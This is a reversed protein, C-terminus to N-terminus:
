RSERLTDQWDKEEVKSLEFLRKIDASRTAFPKEEVQFIQKYGTWDEPVIKWDQAPVFRTQPQVKTILRNSTESALKDMSTIAANLDTGFNEVKVAGAEASFMGRGWTVVKSIGYINGTEHDHRLEFEIRSDGGKTQPTYRLLNSYARPGDPDSFNNARDLNPDEVTVEDYSLQDRTKFGLDGWNKRLNERLREVSKKMPASKQARRKPVTTTFTKYLLNKDSRNLSNGYRSGDEAEGSFGDELVNDVVILASGGEKLPFEVKDGINVQKAGLWTLVENGQSIEYAVRAAEITPYHEKQIDGFPCKLTARCFGPEGTQPNIHYSM